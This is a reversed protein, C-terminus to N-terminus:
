WAVEGDHWERRAVRTARLLSGPGERPAGPQQRVRGARRGRKEGSCGAGAAAGEDAAKRVERLRREDRLGRLVRVRGRQRCRRWRRRCRSTPRAVVWVGVGGCGSM